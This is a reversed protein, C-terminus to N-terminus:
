LVGWPIRPMVRPSNSGEEPFMLGERAKRTFKTKLFLLLKLIM